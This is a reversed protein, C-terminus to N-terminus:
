IQRSRLFGKGIGNRNGELSIVKVTDACFIRFHQLILQRLSIVPQNLCLIQGKANFRLSYLRRFGPQLSNFRINEIIELPQPNRRPCQVSFFAQPLKIINKMHIFHSRELKFPVPQHWGTKRCLIKNRWGGKFKTGPFRKPYPFFITCGTKYLNHGRLQIVPHQCIEQIHFARQNHIEM